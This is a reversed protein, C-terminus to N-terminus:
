EDSIYYPSWFSEQMSGWIRFETGPKLLGTLREVREKGQTKKGIEEDLSLLKWAKKMQPYPSGWENM